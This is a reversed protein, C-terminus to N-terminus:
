DEVRLSRKQLESQSAERNTPLGETLTNQFKKLANLQINKKRTKSNVIYDIDKKDDATQIRTLNIYKNKSIQGLQSTDKRGIKKQM